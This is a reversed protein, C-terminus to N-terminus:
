KKDSERTVLNEYMKLSLVLSRALSLFSNPLFVPFTTQMVYVYCVRSTITRFSHVIAPLLSPRAVVPEARFTGYVARRERFARLGKFEDIGITPFM